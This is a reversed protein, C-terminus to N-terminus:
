GAGGTIWLALAIAAAAGGCGAAAVFPWTTARVLVPVAVPVLREVEV